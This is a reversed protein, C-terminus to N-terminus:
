VLFSCIVHKVDRHLPTRVLALGVLWKYYMICYQADKQVLKYCFLMAEKRKEDEVISTTEHIQYWHKMHQVIQLWDQSLNLCRPFKRYFRMIFLYNGIYTEIYEEENKTDINLLTWGYLDVIDLGICSRAFSIEEQIKRKESDYRKKNYPTPKKKLLEILPFERLQKEREVQKALEKETKSPCPSYLLYTVRASM